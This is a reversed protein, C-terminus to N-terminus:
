NQVPLVTYSETEIWQDTIYGSKSAAIRERLRQINGPVPENKHVSPNESNHEKNNMQGKELEALYAEDIKLQKFTGTIQIQKGELDIAFETIAPGTVVRILSDPHNQYIFMKQGGERCVHSVTGTVTIKKGIYDTPNATLQLLTVSKPPDVAKKQNCSFLSLVIFIIFLSKLGYRNM